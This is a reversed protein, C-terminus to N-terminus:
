GNNDLSRIVMALALQMLQLVNSKYCQRQKADMQVANIRYWMTWWPANLASRWTFTSFYVDFICSKNQACLFAVDKKGISRQGRKELDFRILHAWMIAESFFEASLQHKFLSRKRLTSSALRSSSQGVTGYRLHTHLFPHHFFTRRTQSDREVKLRELHSLFLKQAEIFSSTSRYSRSAKKRYMSAISTFTSSSPTIEAKEADKRAKGYRQLQQQQFKKAAFFTWWWWDNRFGFFNRPCERHM